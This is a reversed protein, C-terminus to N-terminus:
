IFPFHACIHLLHRVINTYWDDELDNEHGEDRCHGLVNEIEDEEKMPAAAETYTIADAEDDFQEFDQVDDVYNPIKVGRSSVRLEDGANRTKKKKKSRAGYDSDSDSDPAAQRPVVTRPLKTRWPTTASVVLRRVKRNLPHKRRRQHKRRRHAMSRTRTRPMRRTTMHMTKTTTTARPYTAILPALLVSILRAYRSTRM